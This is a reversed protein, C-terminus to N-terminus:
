HHTLIEINKKALICPPNFHNLWNNIGFLRSYIKDIVHKAHKADDNDSGRIRQKSTNHVKATNYWLATSHLLTYFICSDLINLLQRVTPEMPIHLVNIFFDKLGLAEYPDSLCM